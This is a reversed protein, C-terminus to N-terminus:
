KAHVTKVTVSAVHLLVGAAEEEGAVARAHQQDALAPGCPLRPLEVADASFDFGAFRRRLRHCALEDLLRRQVNGGAGPLFDEGEGAARRRVVRAPPATVEEAGEAVDVGGARDGVLLEFDGRTQACVSEIASMVTHATNYVPMIVSFTPAGDQPWQPSETM